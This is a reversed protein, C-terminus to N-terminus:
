RGVEAHLFVMTATEGPQGDRGVTVTVRKVQPIVADDEVTWSRDYGPEDFAPDDHDGVILLSDDYALGHLWEVTEEALFVSRTRQNSRTVDSKLLPVVSALALLGVSFVTM